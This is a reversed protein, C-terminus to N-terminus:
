TNPDIDTTSFIIPSPYMVAKTHEHPVCVGKWKVTNGETILVSGTHVDALPALQASSAVETVVRGVGLSNLYTLFYIM